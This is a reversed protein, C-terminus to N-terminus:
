DGWLLSWRELIFRESHIHVQVERQQWWGCAKGQIVVQFIDYIEGWTKFLKRSMMRRCLPFKISDDGSQLNVKSKFGRKLLSWTKFGQEKLSFKKVRILTNTSSSDLYLKHERLPSISSIARNTELPKPNFGNSFHSTFTSFYEKDLARCIGDHSTITPM